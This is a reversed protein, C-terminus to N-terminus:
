KDKECLDNFFLWNLIPVWLIFTNVFVEGGSFKEYNVIYKFHLCLLPFEFFLIILFLIPSQSLIAALILLEILLIPLMFILEIIKPM